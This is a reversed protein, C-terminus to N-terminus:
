KVRGWHQMVQSKPGFYGSAKSRSFEEWIITIPIWSDDWLTGMFFEQIKPGNKEGANKGLSNGSGPEQNKPKGGCFGMPNFVCDIFM